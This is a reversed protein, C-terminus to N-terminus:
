GARHVEDRSLPRGGLELGKRMWRSARRRAREYDSEQGVLKVLYERVLGSLSSGRGAALVKARRVLEPDDIKVTVNSM